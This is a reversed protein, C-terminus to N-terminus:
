RLRKLGQLIKRAAKIHASTYSSDKRQLYSKRIRNEKDKMEEVDM